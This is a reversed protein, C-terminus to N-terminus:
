RVSRDTARAAAPAPQGSTAPTRYLNVLRRLDDKQDDPASTLAKTAWDSANPFDGAEAYCAALTSLHSWDHFRTLECARRAHSVARIPDRVAPDECTALLWAFNDHARAFGPSLRVAQEYDRVAETYKELTVFAAARNNYARFLDPQIRLAETWCDVAAQHQSQNFLLNGRNYWAAVHLPDIRIAAEYNELAMPNQGLAAFVNARVYWADALEPQLQIAQNLDTMAADPQGLQHRALGRRYHLDANQPLLQLAATFDEAAAAHQGGRHRLMGRQRLATADQPTVKLLTDLDAAAADFAGKSELLGARVRLAGPHNPELKLLSGLVELLRFPQNLSILCQATMWLHEAPDDAVGSTNDALWDLDALAEQFRQQSLRCRARVYRALAHNPNVTLVSDADAGAAEWEELSALLEARAARASLDDPQQLLYESLDVKARNLDKIEMLAFARKLLRDGSLRPPEVADLAQVARDFRGQDYLALGELLATEPLHRIQPPLLELDSVTGSIDGCGYRIQARLLILRPSVGAPASTSHEIVSLAVRPLDAAQCSQVLDEILSDDAASLDAVRLLDAAAAGPDDVTLYLQARQRLLSSNQQQQLILQSLQEIAEGPRNLRTLVKAQLRVIDDAHDATVSGTENARRLDNLSEEFRGLEALATARLALLEPHGPLLRLGQEIAEMAAEARGAGLLSEGLLQCCEAHDPALRLATTLDSAADDPRGIALLVRGRELWAAPQEPSLRCAMSLDTLAREYSHIRSYAMGRQLRAEGSDRNLSLLRSFDNVADQPRTQSLLCGRQLLAGEHDPNRALVQDLDDQADRLEGLEIRVCARDFLAAPSAPDIEVAQSLSKLSAPLEGLSRQTAALALWAHSWGPRLRTTRLLDAEAAQFQQTAAYSTGRLFWAEALEPALAVARDLVQLADEHRASKQPELAVRVLSEAQQRQNSCGSLGCALCVALSLGALIRVFSTSQPPFQGFRRCPNQAPFAMGSRCFAATRVVSNGQDRLKLVSSVSRLM